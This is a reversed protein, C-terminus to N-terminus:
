PRQMQGRRYRHHACVGRRCCHSVALLHSSANSPYFSLRTQAAKNSCHRHHTGAGYDVKLLLVVLLPYFIIRVSSATVINALNRVQRSLHDVFHKGLERFSKARSWISDKTPHRLTSNEVM